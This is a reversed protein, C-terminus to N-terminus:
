NLVTQRYAWPLISFIHRLSEITPVSVSFLFKQEKYAHSNLINTGICVPQSKQKVRTSHIQLVCLKAVHKKKM